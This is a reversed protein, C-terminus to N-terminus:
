GSRCARYSKGHHLGTHLYRRGCPVVHWYAASYYHPPSRAPRHRTGGYSAYINFHRYYMDCRYNRRSLHQADAVIFVFFFLVNSTLRSRRVAERQALDADPPAEPLTTLANWLQILRKDKRPEPEIM